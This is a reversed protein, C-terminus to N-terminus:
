LLSSILVKHGEEVESEPLLIEFCGYVGDTKTGLTRVKVVLGADRLLTTAVDATERNQTVFIVIWM